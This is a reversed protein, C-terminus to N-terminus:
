LEIQMFDRIEQLYVSRLIYDMSEDCQNRESLKWVTRTTNRYM